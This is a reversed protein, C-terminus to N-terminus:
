TRHDDRVTGNMQIAKGTSDFIVEALKRELEASARVAFIQLLSELQQPNDLKKCSMATLLGLPKGSSDFPPIGVYSWVGMEVLARDEPFQKQVDKCLHM